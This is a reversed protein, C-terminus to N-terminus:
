FFSSFSLRFGGWTSALLSVPAGFLSGLAGWPRWLAGHPPWPTGFVGRGLAPLTCPSHLPRRNPIKAGLAAGRARAYDIFRNFDIIYFFLRRFTTSSRVRWPGIARRIKLHLLIITLM